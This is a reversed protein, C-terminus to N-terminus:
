SKTVLQNDFFDTKTFTVNGINQDKAKNQAIEIMKSSIDIGRVNDVYESLEITNKGTACGFDLLTDNTNLYPKTAVCPRSPKGSGKKSNKDYNKAIRDWFKEPNKM